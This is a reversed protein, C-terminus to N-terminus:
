EIPCLLLCHDAGECDQCQQGRPCDKTRSCTDHVGCVTNTQHCFGQGETNDACLCFTPCDDVTECPIGCSGNSLCMGGPCSSGRPKRRCKGKKCRKCVGCKPTCKAAAPDPDILYLGGIGLAAMLFLGRRRITATGIQRALADFRITDM